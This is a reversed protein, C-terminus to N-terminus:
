IRNGVPCYPYTDFLSTVYESSDTPYLAFGLPLDLSSQERAPPRLPVADGERLGLGRVRLRVIM